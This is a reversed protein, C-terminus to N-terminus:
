PLLGDGFVAAAFCVTSLASIAFSSGALTSLVHAKRAIATPDSSVFSPPFFFACISETSSMYSKSM